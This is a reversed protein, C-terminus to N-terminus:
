VGWKNIYDKTYANQAGLVIRNHLNEPLRNKINDAINRCVICLYEYIREEDFGNSIAHKAEWMDTIQNHVGSFTMDKTNGLYEWIEQWFDKM